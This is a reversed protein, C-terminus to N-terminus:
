HSVNVPPKKQTTKKGRKEGCRSDPKTGLSFYPSSRQDTFISMKYCSIDVRLFTIISVHLHLFFVSHSAECDNKHKNYCQYIYIYRYISSDKMTSANATQSIKRELWHDVSSGDFATSDTPFHM